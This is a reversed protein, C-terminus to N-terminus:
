DATCIFFRGIMAPLWFTAMITWQLRRSGSCLAPKIRLWRRPTCPFGDIDLNHPPKSDLWFNEHQAFAEPIRSNCGAIFVTFSNLSSATLDKQYPLNIVIPRCGFTTEVMAAIREVIWGQRFFNYMVFVGDPKLVRRVDAFAEKTFLYSELRINAYSSHLLLSDVLAYVVLDYKRETTRLYHRGDDLHPVVRPDQYPHDPHYNRGINQIVPDIEVADIRHAGFKSAHALDNGSGAGIVLADGFPAGGSHQQLLHILSYPAGADAFPIMKQHAITNVLIAGSPIDHTVNYYPSWYTVQTDRHFWDGLLSIALVLVILALAQRRNLSGAQHLLYAIGSCAILFWVSPPAQLFSLASFVVIGAISGGINLTYGLVRNPYADFTRGLVQGLGVFMLAILVFFLAAIAEIPVVFRALDPDRTETGFFVEQPSRQGGVDVAFGSWTHYAAFAALAAFVTGVAIMPFYGLWDQRRRAALCGCSMGLFSAILVVNTFFQLFIVYAAFWRICTLELFLVLFGVLFLTLAQRRVNAGDVAISPETTVEIM